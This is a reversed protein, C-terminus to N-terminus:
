LHAKALPLFPSTPYKEIFEKLIAKSKENKNELRYVRALSLMASEKFPNDARNLIDELTEVSAKLDGKAEYCTALALRTLSEYEADGSIEGLFEKYLAIAEDYDKEVFKIYAIQPLALRAVKSLGYKDRLEQFLAESEKLTESDVQPEMKQTLAYYAMNYSHQGKKNVSRLYFHLAIYAVAIVAVAVGIIKFLFVHANYYNVARASLTLFEDETKLLDKRTTKKKAM